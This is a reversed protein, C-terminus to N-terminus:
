TASPGTRPLRVPPVPGHRLRVLRRAPRCARSSGAVLPAHRPQLPPPRLPIWPSRPDHRGRRRRPGGTARRATGVRPVADAEVVRSGALLLPNEAGLLVDAAQAVAGPAPHVRHDLPAAPAVDYDAVESQLDVPLSLFVPGTPPTLAAQIARRVAVPLDAARTVEVAYKTWPRAVGVLDGGLIPEEFALRRDQQGATVLLPTGERHANYIMGMAAGLGCAIHLNVVGLGRSAMAYGDAMAAVPTEQLGLIYQVDDFDALADNLPLETTGPNGFLYRVGADRLMHLLAGVGTTQMLPDKDNSRRASVLPALM